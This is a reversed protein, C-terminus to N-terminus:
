TGRDLWSRVSEPSTPLSSSLQGQPDAGGLGPPPPPLALITVPGSPCHTVMGRLLAQRPPEGLSLHAGGDERRTM